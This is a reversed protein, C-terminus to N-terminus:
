IKVERLRKWIQRIIILLVDDTDSLAQRSLSQCSEVLMPNSPLNLEESIFSGLTPILQPLDSEMQLSITVKEKFSLYRSVLRVADHVNDPFAQAIGDM